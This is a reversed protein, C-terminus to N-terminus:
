EKQEKWFQVCYAIASYGFAVGMLLRLWHTTDSLSLVSKFSGKLRLYGFFQIFWLLSLGGSVLASKGPAEGVPLSAGTFMCYTDYTLLGVVLELLIILQLSVEELLGAADLALIVILYTLLMLFSVRYAEGQALKQREDFDKRPFRKRLFLSLLCIGIIVALIGLLLVFAQIITM